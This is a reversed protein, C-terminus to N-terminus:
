KLGPIEPFKINSIAGQIQTFKDGQAYLMFLGIAIGIVIIFLLGLILREKNDQISPKYLARTYLNAYKGADFGPVPTYDTKSLANKEEDLDVWYVGLSRYLINKDEIALRKWFKKDKFVIFGEEFKGVKYYDRNIARIKILVLRGFSLKVKFFKWFFGKLLFSVILFSLIMVVSYYIAQMFIPHM